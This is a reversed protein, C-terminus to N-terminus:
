FSNRRQLAAGCSARRLHLSMQAQCARSCLGRDQAARRVQRVWLRV